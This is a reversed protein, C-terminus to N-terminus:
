AKVAAKPRRRLVKPSTPAASDIIIAHILRDMTLKPMNM